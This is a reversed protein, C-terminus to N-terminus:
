DPCRRRRRGFVIGLLASTGFVVWDLLWLPSPSYAGGILLLLTYGLLEQLVVVAFVHVYLLRAQVRALRAFVVLVVAADLVYGIVYGFLVHATLDEGGDLGSTVASIGARLVLLVIAFQIIRSINVNDGQRSM